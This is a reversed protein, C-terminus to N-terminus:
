EHDVKALTLAVSVPTGILTGDPRYSTLLM